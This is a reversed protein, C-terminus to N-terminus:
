GYTLSSLLSLKMSILYYGIFGVDIRMYVASLMKKVVLDHKLNINRFVENKNNM